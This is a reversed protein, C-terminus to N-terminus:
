FIYLAIIKKKAKYYAKKWVNNHLYGYFFRFVRKLTNINQVHWHLSFSSPGRSQIKRNYYLDWYRKKKRRNLKKWNYASLIDFRKRNLLKQKRATDLVKKELNTFYRDKILYRGFRELFLERQGPKLLNLCDKVLRQFRFFSRTKSRKKKIRAKQRKRILKRAEKRAKRIINQKLRMYKSSRSKLFEKRKVEAIKELFLKSYKAM